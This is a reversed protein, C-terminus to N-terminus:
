REPRAWETLVYRVVQVDMAYSNISTGYCPRDTHIREKYGSYIVLGLWYYVSMADVTDLVLMVADDTEPRRAVVPWTELFLPFRTIQISVLFATASKRSLIMSRGSLGGERYISRYPILNALSPMIDVM